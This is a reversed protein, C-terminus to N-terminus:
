NYEYVEAGEIELRLDFAIKEQQDSTLSDWENQVEENEIMQYIFSPTFDSIEYNGLEYILFVAQEILANFCNPSMM